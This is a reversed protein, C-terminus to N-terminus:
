TNFIISLGPAGLTRAFSYIHSAENRSSASEWYRLRFSHEKTVVEDITVLIKPEFEIQCVGDVSPSAIRYDIPPGFM